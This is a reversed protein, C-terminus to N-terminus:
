EFWSALPRSLFDELAVGEDGVLLVGMPHFQERFAEAGRETRNEPRSKVEFGMSKGGLEVVFDVELGRERWYYVRAGAPAAPVGPTLDQIRANEGSRSCARLALRRM